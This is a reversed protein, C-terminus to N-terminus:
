RHLRGLDVFDDERSFYLSVLIKNRWQVMFFIMFLDTKLLGSSLYGQIGMLVTVLCSLLTIM